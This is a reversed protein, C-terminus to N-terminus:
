LDAIIKARKDAYEAETVTGMARLTELEQLRQATSPSPPVPLVPTQPAVSEAVAGPAATGVPATRRLVAM